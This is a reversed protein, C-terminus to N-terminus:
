SRKNRYSSMNLLSLNHLSLHKDKLLRLANCYSKLPTQITHPAPIELNVDPYIVMTTIIGGFHYNVMIFVLKIPESLKRIKKHVQHHLANMKMSPNFAPVSLTFQTKSHIIQDVGYWMAEMQQDTKM